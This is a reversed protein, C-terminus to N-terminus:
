INIVKIIRVVRLADVNFMYVTDCFVQSTRCFERLNKKNINAKIIFGPGPLVRVDLSIQNLTETLSFRNRDNSTLLHHSQNRKIWQEAAADTRLSSLSSYSFVNM